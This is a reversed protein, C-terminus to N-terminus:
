AGEPEKVDSVDQLRAWQLQLWEEDVKSCVVCRRVSWGEGLRSDTASVPLGWLHVEVHTGDEDLLNWRCRSVDARGPFARELRPQEIAVDQETM